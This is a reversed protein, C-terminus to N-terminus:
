DEDTYEKWAETAATKIIDTWEERSIKNDDHLAEGAKQITKGAVILAEGSTLM